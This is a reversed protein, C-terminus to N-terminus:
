KSASSNGFYFGIIALLIERTTADYMIGKIETTTTFLWGENVIVTHLDPFFAPGAIIFAFLSMMVLVIFRRVWVGGRASAAERSEEDHKLLKYTNEQQNALYKLLWGVIASGGMTLLELSM